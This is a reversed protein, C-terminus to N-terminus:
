AHHSTSLTHEMIVSDMNYRSSVSKLTREHESSESPCRQSSKEPERYVRIGVVLFVAGEAWRNSDGHQVLVALAATPWRHSSSILGECVLCLNWRNEWILLMLSNCVSLADFFLLDANSHYSIMVKHATIGIALFPRVHMDVSFSYYQNYIERLSQKENMWGTDFQISNFYTCRIDPDTSSWYFQSQIDGLAIRFCLLHMSITTDHQRRKQADAFGTKCHLHLLLHFEQIPCRTQVAPTKQSGM